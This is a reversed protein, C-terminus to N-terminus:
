DRSGEENPHRKRKGLAEPLRRGPQRQGPMSGSADNAAQGSAANSARSSPATPMHHAKSSRNFYGSNELDIHRRFFGCHGKKQQPTAYRCQYIGQRDQSKWISFQATEGCGCLVPRARTSNPSRSYSQRPLAQAVARGKTTIRFIDKGGGGWM